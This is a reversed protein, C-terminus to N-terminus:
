LAPMFVFEGDVLLRDGQRITLYRDWKRVNSEVGDSFTVHYNATDQYNSIAVHRNLLYWQLTESCLKGVVGKLLGDNQSTLSEIYTSVGWAEEFLCGAEPLTAWGAYPKRENMNRMTNGSGGGCIVAPSYKLRSEETLNLCYVMPIKGALNFDFYETTVDVGNKKWYDLIGNVAKLLKDDKGTIGFADIHVTGNEKIFPLLKLINDIRKQAFGTNWEKIKDVWYCQQGGWRFESKSLSGDQNKVILDNKLYEEWLPSNMYADSMNIHVSVCANYKKAENALWLFSTLADPDEARKLRHNVESWAPYKSDHGDFQWGVLYVIQKIGGTINHIGRISRLVDEFNNYIKDGDEPIDCIIKYVLSQHYAHNYHATEDKYVSYSYNSGSGSQSWSFCPFCSILLILLLLSLFCKKM